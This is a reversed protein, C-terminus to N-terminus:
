EKKRRKKRNSKENSGKEQFVIMNRKLDVTRRTLMMDGITEADTRGWEM